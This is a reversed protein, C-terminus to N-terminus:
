KLCSLYARSQKFWSNELKLIGIILFKWFTLGCFSFLFTFKNVKPLYHINTIKKMNVLRNSGPCQNVTNTVSACRHRLWQRLTVSSLFKGGTVCISNNTLVVIIIITYWSLRTHEQRQCLVRLSHRKSITRSSCPHSEECIIMKDSIYKTFEDHIITQKIKCSCRWHYYVITSFLSM